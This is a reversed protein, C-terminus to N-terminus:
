VRAHRKQYNLCKKIINKIRRWMQMKLFEFYRWKYDSVTDQSDADIFYVSRGEIKYGKTRLFVPVLREYLFAIVRSQYGEYQSVDILKELELLLPYLWACLEDFKEWRTIFLYGLQLSKEELMQLWVDVSEPHVKQLAETVYDINEPFPHYQIYQERVTRDFQLTHLMVFDCKKLLRMLRRVHYKRQMFGQWALYYEDQWNSLLNDDALYRRYHSTGIIDVDKLNKWAWYLSTFDGYWKNKASINDEGCADNTIDSRCAGAAIPLFPPQDMYPNDGHTINLIVVKPKKVKETEM